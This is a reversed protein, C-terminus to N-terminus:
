DCCSPSVCGDAGCRLVCTSDGSRRERLDASSGGPDAGENLIAIMRPALEPQLTVGHIGYAHFCETATKALAQFDTLQNESVTIHASALTKQQNLRWVHLEHVALVGDLKEIDHQIDQPNVGSPASELLILGSKKVLPISSFFIMLAIAVSVAPDAYYRSHSKTKWIVAGAIIVGVNNAADGAVHILVGMIGLDGDKGRRSQDTTEHRHNGHLPASQDGRAKRSALLKKRMMITGQSLEAPSGCDLHGTRPMGHLIAASIVNLVFGVCGIIMVLLPNEVPQLSVFREIAQLFISVGLALLFVGNFFAGLLTARKLAVLAVIFGVLDNLYHFADAVLALSRTYFG